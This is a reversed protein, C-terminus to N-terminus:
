MEYSNKLNKKEKNSVKIYFRSILNIKWTLKNHAVTIM